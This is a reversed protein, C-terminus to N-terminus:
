KKGRKYIDMLEPNIQNNISIEIHAFKYKIDLHGIILLSVVLLIFVCIMLFYNDINYLRLWIALLLFKQILNMPIKIYSSARNYCLKLYYFKKLVNYM